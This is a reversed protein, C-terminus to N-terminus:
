RTALPEGSESVALPEQCWVEIQGPLKKKVRCWQKVRSIWPELRQALKSQSLLCITGCKVPPARPQLYVFFDVSEGSRLERTLLTVLRGGPNPLPPKIFLVENTGPIRGTWVRAADITVSGSSWGASTKEIRLVPAGMPTENPEAVYRVTRATNNSLRLIAGHPWKRHEVLTM